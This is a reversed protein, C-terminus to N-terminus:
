DGAYAKGAEQKLSEINAGLDRLVVECRKIARNVTQLGATGIDDIRLLELQQIYIAEWLHKQSSEIVSNHCEACKTRELATGGDCGEHDATCWAVGTARIYVSDSIKQVMESHNKYIRVEDTKARLKIINNALGGSLKNQKELWSAVISSKEDCMAKYLDNLLEDDMNENAAYLATMDISWHKFHKRLYRLDGLHNRIAYIAFTRRCQHTTFDWDVGCKYVFSKLRKNLAYPTIPKNVYGKKAGILYVESDDINKLRTKQVKELIQIASHCIEPCIWETEGTHTKLSKGRFWYQRKGVDDHKVVRCGSKLSLLEHARIGTTILIILSCAESIFEHAHCRPYAIIEVAQRMITSLIEDPIVLTKSVKENSYGSLSNASSDPWPHRFAFKTDILTEYLLTIPILKQALSVKSIKRGKLGKGNKCHRVFEAGVLPTIDQLKGVGVSSLYNLFYRLHRYNKIVSTGSPKKYGNRGLLYYRSITIKLPEIFDPNHLDSFNIRRNSKNTSEPFLHDPFCWVNDGYRSLVEIGNNAKTNYTLLASERTSTSNDGSLIALNHIDMEGAKLKWFVRM